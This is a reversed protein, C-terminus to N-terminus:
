KAKNANNFHGISLTMRVLHSINRAQMKKMVAARHHEITRASIGLQRAILQVSRGSM